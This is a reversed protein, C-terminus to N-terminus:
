NYLYEVVCGDFSINASFLSRDLETLELAKAHWLNYNAANRHEIMVGKPRGTTGSTYIMYAMDGIETL